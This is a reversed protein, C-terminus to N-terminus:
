LSVIFNIIEVKQGGDDRYSSRLKAKTKLSLRSIDYEYWSIVIVYIIVLHSIM